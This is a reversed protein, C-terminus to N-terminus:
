VNISAAGCEHIGELSRNIGKVTPEAVRTRAAVSMRQNNNVSM